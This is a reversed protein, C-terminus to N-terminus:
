QFEERKRNWEEDKDRENKKNATHKHTKTDQTNNPFPGKIQVFEVRGGLGGIRQREPETANVGKGTGRGRRTPFFAVGQTWGGELVAVGPVLGNGVKWSVRCRITLGGHPPEM